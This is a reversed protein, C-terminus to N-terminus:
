EWQQLLFEEAEWEELAVVVEVVENMGYPLLGPQRKSRAPHRGRRQTAERGAPHWKKVKTIRGKDPAGRVPAKIKQWDEVESSM